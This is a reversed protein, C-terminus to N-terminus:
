CTLFIGGVARARPFGREILVASPEIIQSWKPQSHLIAAVLEDRFKRRRTDQAEFYGGLVGVILLIGFLSGLVVGIWQWVSM